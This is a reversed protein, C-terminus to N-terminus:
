LFGCCFSRIWECCWVSWCVICSYPYLFMGGVLFSGVSFRLTCLWHLVLLETLYYMPAVSPVMFYLIYLCLSEKVLMFQEVLVENDVCM